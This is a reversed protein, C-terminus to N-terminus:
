QRQSVKNAHHFPKTVFSFIPFALWSPSIARHYSCKVNKWLVQTRNEAGANPSMHGGVTGVGPSKLGRFETPVQM